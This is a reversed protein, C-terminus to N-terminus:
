KDNGEYKEEVTTAAAPVVEKGNEFVVGDVSVIDEITQRIDGKKSPDKTGKAIEPEYEFVLKSGPKAVALANFLHKHFLTFSGHPRKRNDGVSADPLGGIYVTMYTSNGTREIGRGGIMTGTIQVWEVEQTKDNALTIERKVLTTTPAIIDFKPKEAKAEQKPAEAKAQAPMPTFKTCHCKPDTCKGKGNDQHIAGPHRCTCGVLPEQVQAQEVSGADEAKAEATKADAPKAPDTTSRAVGKGDLSIVQEIRWYTKGEAGPQQSCQAVVQKGSSDKLLRALVATEAVLLASEFEGKVLWNKDRTKGKNRKVRIVLVNEDGPVPSHVKGVTGAFKVLSEQQGNSEATREESVNGAFPDASVNSTGDEAHASKGIVDLDQTFIGSSRTASIVADIKSNHSVIGNPLVFLGGDVEIDYLVAARHEETIGILTELDKGNYAPESPTMWGTYTPFEKGAYAASGPKLSMRWGFIAALTRLDDALAFNERTFGLIYKEQLGKKQRHGDGALYGDLVCRLFDRGQRWAYKSLHKKYSSDGSVFQEMLGRFAPGNIDVDLTNGSGRPRALLRCGLRAAVRDIRLVFAEEDVNLTFSAGTPYFHGEAIFLGVIWGIEPDAHLHSGIDIGDRILSFEQKMDAVALEGCATPFVHEWSTQTHWGDALDIRISTERDERVMGLLRVWQRDPGPLWITAGKRWMAHMTDFRVRSIGRETKVLVPTNSGLCRKKAMKLITNKLTPVSDNISRGTDQGEIAQDGAQFKAGCGGKRSFCFWACDEFKSKMITAAGCEPCKREGKRYRYNDEWSNCSGLGESIVDGTRRDTLVCTIEYDFLPPACDWKEVRRIREAPYTDAIGFIECLKDAGSKLLNRKKSGPVVAGYDEGEVLYSDVFEQFEKLRQKALKLDMVPALMTMPQSKVLAVSSQASGANVSPPTTVQDVYEGEIATDQPM